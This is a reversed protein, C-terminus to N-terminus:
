RPWTPSVGAHGNVCGTLSSRPLQAHVVGMLAYGGHDFGEPAALENDDGVVVVALVLAIQEDGGRQARCLLHREHDAIRRPDYARREGGLVCLAQPEVRHHREVIRREAGGERDRHVHAV